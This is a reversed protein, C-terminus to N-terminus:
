LLGVPEGLNANAQQFMAILDATSISSETKRPKLGGGTLLKTDVHQANAKLAGVTADERKILSFPDFNLFRMANLHTIKDIEEAPFDKISEWLNNASHPWTSDAHPYDCEWAIQNIGVQHRVSLGFDDEHFCFLFRDALLDSPMVGGLDAHTWYRHNRYAADARERLFPVWGMCGESMAFRLEPFKLLLPSFLLDTFADAIKINILATGVLAPSEKSPTSLPGATGIHIAVAMGLDAVAAFFRDWHGWHISPQGISTPDEPFSVVAVGKSAMRRLEAIALDVDWLPVLALPIFRGPYRAVWEELHWDNFAQLIALMLGKDKGTAFREGSFGPLSPFNMSSLVGNANMDEVRAHIDYTGKRVDVYRAPEDGLEDRNRGCVAGPGVGATPKGELMWREEGNAFRAVRPAQDCYASPLRGIFLNPPEIIHDDVSILFMDECRM